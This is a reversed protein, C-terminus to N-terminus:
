NKYSKTKQISEWRLEIKKKFYSKLASNYYFNSFEIQLRGEGFLLERSKIFLYIIFKLNLGSDENSKTSKIKIKNEHTLIRYFHIFSKASGISENNDDSLYFLEIDHCSM